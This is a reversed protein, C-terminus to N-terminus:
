EGVPAILTALEDQDLQGTHTGVVQGDEALLLAFPLGAPLRDGVAPLGSPTLVVSRHRVRHHALAAAALGTQEADLSVSVVAISGADFLGKLLPIEAFCPPCYTAWFAYLTPREPARYRLLPQEPALVRDTGVQRWEASAELLPRWRATTATMAGRIATASAPPLQADACGSFLAAAILVSRWAAPRVPNM